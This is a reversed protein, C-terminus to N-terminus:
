PGLAGLGKTTGAPLVVIPHGHPMQGQYEFKGSAVLFVHPSDEDRYYVGSMLGIRLNSYARTIQLYWDPTEVGYSDMWKPGTATTAPEIATEEGFDNWSSIIINRPNLKISRLWERVYLAGQEREIPPKNEGLHSRDWGPTIGVTETSAPQPYVQVWGWFGNAFYPQLKPNTSEVLGTAREVSYRADTWNAGVINPDNDYANYTVLLPKEKWIFYSPRQAYHEWVYQADVAQADLSHAGWLAYGIVLAAPIRDAISRQDNFTFLSQVNKEIEGSDNGIGNTDDLLLYDIGASKMTSFEATLTGADGSDYYGLVPQYRSWEAWHSGFPTGPKQWWLTYWAGVKTAPNLISPSPCVWGAPCNTAVVTCTNSATVWGNWTPGPCSSTRTQTISGTQGTPCSLTQTAPPLPTCVVTSPTVSIPTPTPTPTPTRTVTVPSMSTPPAPPKAALAVTAQTIANQAVTRANDRMSQPLEPHATVLQLLILATQLLQVIAALSM